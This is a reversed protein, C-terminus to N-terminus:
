SKVMQVSSLSDNFSSSPAHQGATSPVTVTLNGFALLQTSAPADVWAKVDIEAPAGPVQLPYYSKSVLDLIGSFDLDSRVVESFQVGKPPADPSKGVFDAVAVRAKSVGLGTGTRFWDQASAPSSILLFICACMFVSLGLFVRRLYLRIGNGRSTQLKSM